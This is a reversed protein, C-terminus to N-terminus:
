TCPTSRNPAQCNCQGSGPAMAPYQRQWRGLQREPHPNALRSSRKRRTMGSIPGTRVMTAFFGPDFDRRDTLDRNFVHVQGLASTSVIQPKGEGRIDGVSVHWVNAISGYKWLERGKSDLIHLGVKGNFGVIVEDSGDGDLDAPWVDDIGGASYEWLHRGELTYATVARSWTGFALLVTGEDAFHAIRLNAARPFDIQRTMKGDRDLDALSNGTSAHLVENAADWVVGTYPGNLSWVLELERTADFQLSPAQSKSPLSVACLLVVIGAFRM